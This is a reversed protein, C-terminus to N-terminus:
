EILINERAFKEYSDSAIIGKIFQATDAMIKNVIDNPLDSGIGLLYDIQRPKRIYHLTLSSFTVGKPIYIKVTEKTRVARIETERSRSLHSNNIYPNYELDSIAVPSTLKKIVNIKDTVLSRTEFDYDSLNTTLTISIDNISTIILKETKNDFKIYIKDKSKENIDVLNLNIVKVLANIFIFSRIYDKVGDQPLYDPPLDTYDFVTALQTINDKDKYTLEVKFTTLTELKINKLDRLSYETNTIGDVEKTYTGTCDYAINASASIWGYFDLPLLIVAEEKNNSVPYLTETEFLDSLSDLTTQTDFLSVQKANSLSDTRKDKYNLSTFNFLMDLEQPLFNKSKHTNVKQLLIGLGIHIESVTM